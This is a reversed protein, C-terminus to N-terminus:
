EYHIVNQLPEKVYETLREANINRYMARAIAEEDFDPNTM